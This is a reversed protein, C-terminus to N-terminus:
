FIERRAIATFKLGYKQALSKRQLRFRLFAAASLM